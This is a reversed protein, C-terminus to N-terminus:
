TRSVKLKWLVKGLFYYLKAAINKLILLVRYKTVIICPYSSEWSGFKKKYARNGVMDFETCGRDRWYRMATYIMYENPRYHQYERYSAGGWFFMRKNYAPFISTAISKGEPDRVRLCLINGSPGLHRLLRKVKDVTYTPVLGQKAFVDKLQEFYDVAFEDNPEAQEITAGRREFQRVFNRCDTKMNKYLFADDGDIGLELTEGQSFQWGNQKALEKVVSADLMRDNIQLYYCAETKFIYKVLEPLIENGLSADFLDFGMYQTSWGPFPSAIIPIGFKKCRLASFYGINKGDKSIRLIYPVAKSDESIFEIWERTTLVSKQPFANFEEGLTSFNVKEFFYNSM